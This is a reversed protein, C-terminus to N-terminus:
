QYLTRSNIQDGDFGYATSDVTEIKSIDENYNSMNEM